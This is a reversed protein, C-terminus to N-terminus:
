SFSGLMEHISSPFLGDVLRCCLEGVGEGLGVPDDVLLGGLSSLALPPEGLVEGIPHHVVEFLV